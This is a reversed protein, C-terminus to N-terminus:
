SFIKVLGKAIFAVFKNKKIVDTIYSYNNLEHLREYDVQQSQPVFQDIVKQREINHQKVYKDDTSLGFWAFLVIDVDVYVPQENHLGITEFFFKWDSVIKLTEDYLGYKDFLDRRIFTAQHKITGWYFDYLSLLRNKCVVRKSHDGFDNLQHGCIYPADYTKDKFISELVTESAFADDSNLFYCYEGSAKKIGKNMANFVGTDPESIWFDIYEEYKKIVDLSRDTSNGDIVIFEYCKHTQAIISKITKELGEANNLNVTIISVKNM